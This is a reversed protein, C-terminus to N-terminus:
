LLGPPLPPVPITRIPYTVGAGAYNVGWYFQYIICSFVNYTYPMGFRKTNNPDAPLYQLFEQYLDLLFM